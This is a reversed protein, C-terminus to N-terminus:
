LLNSENALVWEEVEVLSSFQQRKVDDIDLYEYVVTPELNGQTNEVLNGLDVVRCMGFDDDNFWRNMLSAAVDVVKPHLGQKNLM